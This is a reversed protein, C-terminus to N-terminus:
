WMAKVELEDVYGPDDIVRYARAEVAIAASYVVVIRVDCKESRVSSTGVIREIHIEEAVQNRAQASRAVERRRGRRIWVIVIEPSVATNEVRVGHRAHGSRSIVASVLRASSVHSNVFNTM